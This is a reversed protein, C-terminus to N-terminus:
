RLLAEGSATLALQSARSALFWVVAGCSPRVFGYVYRWQFRHQGAAGPRQGRPAWVKRIVPKLGVRHEDFAWVELTREPAEHSLRQMRARFQAKFTEQAV